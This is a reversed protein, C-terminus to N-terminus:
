GRIAQDLFERATWEKGSLHKLSMGFNLYGEAPSATIAAHEEIWDMRTVDINATSLASRTRSLLVIAEQWVKRLRNCEEELKIVTMEATFLDKRATAYYPSDQMESLRNLIDKHEYGESM